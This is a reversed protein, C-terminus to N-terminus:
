ASGQRSLTREFLERAEASKGNAYLAYAKAFTENQENTQALLPAPFAGVSLALLLLAITRMM